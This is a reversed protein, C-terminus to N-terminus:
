PLTRGADVSAVVDAAGDSKVMTLGPRVKSAAGPAGAIAKDLAKGLEDVYTPSTFWQHNGSTYIVDYRGNTRARWMALAIKYALAGGPPSWGSDAGQVGLASGAFLLRDNIDILTAAGGLAEVELRLPRGAGDLGLDIVAGAPMRQALYITDPQLEGLGAERAPDADLLVVELPGDGVLKRVLALLGPAGSGSGILLSARSGKILQLVEGKPGRIQHLQAKIPLVAKLAAATQWQAPYTSPIRVAHWPWAAPADIQALSYVIQASKNTVIATERAASYPEGEVEGKVLAEALAAEELIYTRDAPRGNLPAARRTGFDYQYFHAGFVALNPYPATLAALDKTMQAYRSVPAWQIWVFGSGIADGSFLMQNDADLYGTSGPTHPPMAVAKITRDGLEIQGVATGAGHTTAGGGARIPVYNAPASAPWDLDMYYVPRDSMRKNEGIHDGHSHTNAVVFDLPRARVAGNSEHGLLYRVVTKLDNVGETATAPNATDILLARDRGELLYISSGQYKGDGRPLNHEIRFTRQGRPNTAMLYATYQGWPNAAAYGTITGQEDRTEAVFGPFVRFFEIPAPNPTQAFATTAAMALAAATM